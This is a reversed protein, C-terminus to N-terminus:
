TAASHSSATSTTAIARPGARRGSLVTDTVTNPLRYADARSAKVTAIRWPGCLSACGRPETASASSGSTTVHTHSVHAISAPVSIPPGFSVGTRDGRLVHAPATPPTTPPRMAANSYPGSTSLRRPKCSLTQCSTVTPATPAAPAGTPPTPSDNNLRSAPTLSEDDRM